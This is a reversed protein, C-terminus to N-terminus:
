SSPVTNRFTPMYFESTPSNVMLFCVVYLVRRFESISKNKEKVQEKKGNRWKKYRDKTGCKDREKCMVRWQLKHRQKKCRGSGM